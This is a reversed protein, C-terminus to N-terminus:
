TEASTISPSRSPPLLADSCTSRRSPRQSQFKSESRLHLHLSRLLFFFLCRCCHFTNIMKECTSVDAATKQKKQVEDKRKNTQKNTECPQFLFQSGFKTNRSRATTKWFGSAKKIVEYNSNLIRTFRTKSPAKLHFPKWALFRRWIYNQCCVVKTGFHM